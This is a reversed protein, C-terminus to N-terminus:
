VIRCAVLLKLLRPLSPPTNLACFTQRLAGGYSEKHRALSQTPYILRNALWNTYIFRFTRRTLWDKTFEEEIRHFPMVGLHFEAVGEARFREMARRVLFYASLPDSAPLWRRTASLYGVLRGDQFLPDFSAFATPGGDPGIIFFKRVGPEDALVTPRVLFALERRKTTRTRRWGESIAKVQVPDLGAFSLEEVHHGNRAFRNVATRFSRRKPGSFDYGAIDIVSEIGFANVFFGRESLLAAIRHSVQWFTVDGKEAIFADILAGCREAPALPDSLVFATRGVMRYALFGRGDGFHRLGPQFAVSYALAFNGHAQLLTMREADSIEQTPSEAAPM